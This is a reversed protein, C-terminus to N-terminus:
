TSPHSVEGWVWARISSVIEVTIWVATWADDECLEGNVPAPAM